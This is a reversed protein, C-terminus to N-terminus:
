TKLIGTNKFRLKDARKIAVLRLAPGMAANACLLTDSVVNEVAGRM